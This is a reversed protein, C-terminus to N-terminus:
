WSVEQCFTAVGTICQPDTKTDEWELEIFDSGTYFISIQDPQGPKASQTTEMAFSPQGFIGDDTVPTVM